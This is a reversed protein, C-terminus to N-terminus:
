RQYPWLGGGSCQFCMLGLVRDELTSWVLSTSGVTKGDCFLCEVLGEGVELRLICDYKWGSSGGFEV